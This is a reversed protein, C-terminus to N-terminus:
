PKRPPVHPGIGAWPNPVPAPPSPGPPLLGAASRAATLRDRATPQCRLTVAAGGISLRGFTRAEVRLELGCRRCHDRLTHWAADKIFWELKALDMGGLDFTHGLRWATALAQVFLAWTAAGPELWNESV